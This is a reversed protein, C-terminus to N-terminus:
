GTWPFHPTACRRRFGKRHSLPRCLQRSLCLTNPLQDSSRYLYLSLSVLPKATPCYGPHPPQAKLDGIILGFRSISGKSLLSKKKWSLYLPQVTQPTLRVQGIQSQLPHFAYLSIGPVAAELTPSNKIDNRTTSPHIANGPYMLATYAPSILLTLLLLRQCWGFRLSNVCIM